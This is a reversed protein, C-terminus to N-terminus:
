LIYLNVKTKKEKTKRKGQRKQGQGGRKMTSVQSVTMKERCLLHVVQAEITVSYGAPLSCVWKISIEKRPKSNSFLGRPVRWTTNPGM